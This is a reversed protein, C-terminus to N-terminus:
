LKTNKLTKAFVAILEESENQLYELKESQIINAEKLLELLFVAEDCEEAVICIKAFYEKTSRAWCAARFNAAVSTSCRLLQKGMIRAEDTKPLVQFLKIIDLAFKKTRIRFKENFNNEM